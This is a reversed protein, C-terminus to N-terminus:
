MDTTFVAAAAREIEDHPVDRLHQTLGWRHGFPDVIQGDREGTFWDALPRLVAAGHALAREWVLDVDDVDLYFVASSCGTAKPSRADHEPFEDALVVKSPGFWLEVDILRGDPLTVRQREEAGLVAVYWHAARGADEVIIHTAIVARRRNSVNAHRASHARDRTTFLASGRM